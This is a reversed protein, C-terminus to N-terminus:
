HRVTPLLVKNNNALRALGFGITDVVINLAGLGLASHALFYSCRELIQVVALQRFDDAETEECAHEDCRDADVDMADASESSYISLAAARFSTLSDLITSELSGVAVMGWKPMEPVPGCCQVLTKLARLLEVVSRDPLSGDAALCDLVGLADLVADRVLVVAEKSLAAPRAFVAILTRSLRPSPLSSEQLSRRLSSCVKDVILGVHGQLLADADDYGSM